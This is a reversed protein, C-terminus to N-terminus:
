GALDMTWYITGAGSAVAGIGIQTFRPNLINARHGPSNMWAQMVQQASSQGAAVNEGWTSWGYGCYSMRAGATSGNSGNHTMVQRTAQDASQGVAACSLAGNGVVPPLGAAARAQNVLQSVEAGFPMPASIPPPPPAPACSRALTGIGGVALVATMGFAGLRQHLRRGWRTTRAARGDAPSTVTSARRTMM